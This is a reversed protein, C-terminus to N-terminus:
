SYRCISLVSGLFGKASDNNLEILPTNQIEQNAFAELASYAFIISAFLSEYYCIVNVDEDTSQKIKKGKKIPMLDFHEKARLYHDHSLNLYMATVDAVPFSVSGKNYSVEAPAYIITGKEWLNGSKPHIFDEAVSTVARFRWDYDDPTKSPKQNDSM